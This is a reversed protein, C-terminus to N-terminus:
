QSENGESNSPGEEGNKGTPEAGSIGGSVGVSPLAGPPAIPPDVKASEKVLRRFESAQVTPYALALVLEAAKETMAGSTVRSLVDLVDSLHEGVVGIGSQSAEVDGGELAADMERAEEDLVTETSYEAGGYRSVAVEDAGLVGSSIDLADAQSTKLRVDADEVPSTLQLSNFKISWNKPLDAFEPTALLIRHLYELLPEVDDTQYSQVVDDWNDGEAEGTGFGGPSLGFLKTMPMRAVAALDIGFRDLLEPMGAATTAIREFSENDADVAISQWMSKFRDIVSFRGRVKDESNAQIIGTLNKLKYVGLVWEQIVTRASKMVSSRNSLQDKCVELVSDGWGDNQQRVRETLVMGDTRWVRSNHVWTDILTERRDGAQARTAHLTYAEAFGFGVSKPDENVESSQTVQPSDHTRLWDFGTVRELDLELSPDQGDRVGLVLLAGGYQRAQKLHQSVRSKLKTDKYWRQLRENFEQAQEPSVEDDEDGKFNVVWGARMADDVVTDIIIRAFGEGRGMSDLAQFDLPLSPRWGTSEGKDRGGYGMGTVPNSWGDATTTRPVISDLFQAGDNSVVKLGKSKKAM